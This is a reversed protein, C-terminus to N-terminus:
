SFVMVSVSILMGTHPRVVCLAHPLYSCHCQMAANPSLFILFVCFSSSILSGLSYCPVRQRRIKAEQRGEKQSGFCSKPTSSCNFYPYTVFLFCEVCRYCVRISFRVWSTRSSPRLMHTSATSLQSTSSLTRGRPAGVLMSFLTRPPACWRSFKTRTSLEPLMPTLFRPLRSATTM